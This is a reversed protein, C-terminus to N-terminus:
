ILPSGSDLPLLVLSLLSLTPILGVEISSNQKEATNGPIYLVVKSARCLYNVPFYSM